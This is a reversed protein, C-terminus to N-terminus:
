ITPEQQADVVLHDFSHTSTQLPKTLGVHFLVFFGNDEPIPSRPNINLGVFCGKISRVQGFLQRGLSGGLLANQPLLPAPDQGTALRRCKAPGDLM